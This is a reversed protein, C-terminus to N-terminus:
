VFFGMNAINFSHSCQFKKKDEVIKTGRRLRIAFFHHSPLHYGMPDDVKASFNKTRPGSLFEWSKDYSNKM